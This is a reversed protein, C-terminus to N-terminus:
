NEMKGTFGFPVSESGWVRLAGTEGCRFLHVLMRETTGDPNQYLVVESREYTHRTWNTPRQGRIATNKIGNSPLFAALTVPKGQTTTTM